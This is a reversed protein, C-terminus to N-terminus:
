SSPSCADSDQTAAQPIYPNRALHVIQWGAAALDRQLADDPMVKFIITSLASGSIIGLRTCVDRLLIRTRMKLFMMSRWSAPEFESGKIYCDNFEKFAVAPFDVAMAAKEFERRSVTYVYNGSDEYYPQDFHKPRGRWRHLRRKLVNVLTHHQDQPEVLIVGRRAVRFLEYLALYPRPFHHFAEKCYVYDFSDAPFSLHEANEIHYADILGEEKAPRLLDESIDSPTVQAVGQRKLRISDLGLRGDGVTLWRAQPEHRALIGAVDYLRKHRWYDASGEDFWSRILRDDGLKGRFIRSQRDHCAAIHDM